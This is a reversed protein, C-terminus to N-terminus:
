EVPKSSGARDILWVTLFGIAMLALAMLLSTDLGPVLWEYGIAKEKGEIMKYEAHKWPWIIMLSGAVFGTLLSITANKCRDFLFSLLRSFTVLGVACGIGFPILIMFRLGSISQLVLIYNGMLLLVYSGSLGPLIMSSIAVAGCLFVYLVGENASAPPLFAISVAIALGVLFSVIVPTNLTTIQKGVGFISAIILGFFFSLTLTEFDTFAIELIKALSLISVGIGGFIFILFVLDVHVSFEKFKGKVLLQIATLDCNKLAKILREYIGTIFAITGGSVGPIVNAAGMAAGKLFWGFYAKM